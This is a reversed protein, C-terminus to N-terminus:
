FYAKSLTFPQIEINTKRPQTQEKILEFIQTVMVFAPECIHSFFDLFIQFAMIIVHLMLVVFVTM